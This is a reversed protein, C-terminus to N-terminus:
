NSGLASHQTVNSCTCVIVTSISVATDTDRRKV